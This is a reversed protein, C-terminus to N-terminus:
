HSTIIRTPFGLNRELLQRSIRAGHALLTTALNSTPRM